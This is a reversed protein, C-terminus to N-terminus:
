EATWAQLKTAGALYLPHRPHGDKTKGLCYVGAAVARVAAVIDCNWAYDGCDPQFAGWALVVHRGRCAAKISELNAPGVPDKVSRLERPDTARYAYKNVVVVGGYGFGRAFGMCRMVTPDQLFADAKSPNLMLFVLSPEEGWDRVLEYRYLGDVSMTAGLRMGDAWRSVSDVIEFAGPQSTGLMVRGNIDMRDAELYELSNKIIM